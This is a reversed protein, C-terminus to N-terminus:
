ILLKTLDSVNDICTSTGSRGYRTNMCQLSNKEGKRVEEGKEGKKKMGKPDRFTVGMMVLPTWNWKSGSDFNGDRSKFNRLSM